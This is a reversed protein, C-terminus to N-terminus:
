SDLFSKREKKTGIMMPLPLQKIRLGKRLDRYYNIPPKVHYLKEHLFYQLINKLEFIINSRREGGDCECCMKKAEFDEDDYKGCYHELAVAKLSEGYFSCSQHYKDKAGNATGYCQVVLLINYKNKSLLTINYNIYLKLYFQFKHKSHNHECSDIGCAGNATCVM